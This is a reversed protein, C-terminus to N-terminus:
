WDLNIFQPDNRSPVYRGKWNAHSEGSIKAKKIRNREYEQDHRVGKKRKREDSDRDVM